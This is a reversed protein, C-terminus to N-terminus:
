PISFEVPHHFWRLHPIHFNRIHSSISVIFFVKCHMPEDGKTTHPM